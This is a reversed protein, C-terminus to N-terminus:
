IGIVKWNFRLGPQAWQGGDGFNGLQFPLKPVHYVLAVPDPTSLHWLSRIGTVFEFELMSIFQGDGKKDSLTHWWGDADGFYIKALNESTPDAAEWDGERSTRSKATFDFRMRTTAGDESHYFGFEMKAILM